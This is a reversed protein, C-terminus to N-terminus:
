AAVLYHVSFLDDPDTWAHAPLWGATRALAQFGAVTYKHSDETHITEDAVFAIPVGAVLRDPAPPRVSAAVPPKGPGIAALTGGSSEAGM